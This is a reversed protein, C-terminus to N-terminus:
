RLREWVGARIDAAVGEYWFRREPECGKHRSLGELWSAIGDVLGGREVEIGIRALRVVERARHVGLQQVVAEQETEPPSQMRHAEEAGNLMQDLDKHTLPKDFLDKVTSM